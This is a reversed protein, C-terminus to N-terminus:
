TMWKQKSNFVADMINIGEDFEPAQVLYGIRVDKSVWIKKNEGEAPELGAIVKLLTSKGAGNKAVIAIKEGKNVQLSINDFLVKEGYTKSISELNLYNV